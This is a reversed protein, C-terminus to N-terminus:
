RQGSAIERNSTQAPQLADIEKEAKASSLDGIYAITDARIGVDARYPAAGTGDCITGNRIIVQYTPHRACSISIIFLGFLTLRSM